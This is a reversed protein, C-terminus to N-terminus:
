KSCLKTKVPLKRITETDNDLGQKRLLFVGQWCSIYYMLSFLSDM